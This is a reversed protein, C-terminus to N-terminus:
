VKTLRDVACRPSLASKSNHCAESAKNRNEHFRDFSSTQGTTVAAALKGSLNKLESKFAM